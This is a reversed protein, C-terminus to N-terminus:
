WRKSINRVGPPTSTGPQVTSAGVQVRRCRGTRWAKALAAGPPRCTVSETMLRLRDCSVSVRTTKSPSSNSLADEWVRAQSSMWAQLLAALGKADHRDRHRRSEPVPGDFHTDRPM